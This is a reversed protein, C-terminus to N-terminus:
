CSVASQGQVVHDTSPAPVVRPRAADPYVDAGHASVLEHEVEVLQDAIRDIRSSQWPRAEYACALEQKLRSYRDAVLERSM